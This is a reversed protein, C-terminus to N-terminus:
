PLTPLRQPPRGPPPPPGGVGVPPSSVQVSVPAAQQPEAAAPTPPELPLPSQEVRPGRRRGVVPPPAGNATPPAVPAAPAAPATPSLPPLTGAVPTPQPAVKFTEGGYETPTGALGPAGPIDRLMATRLDEDLMQLVLGYNAQSWPQGVPDVLKDPLGGPLASTKLLHRRGQADTFPQLFLAFQDRGQDDAVKGMEYVNGFWSSAEDTAARGPLKAGVVPLGGEDTAEMALATFVPAAVLYPIGLTNNVLQPARSQGFGVDARNNGGLKISGSIVVGGFAPKEGGIQGQGRSHDMFEMVVGTMSTLGDYAVGGVLEFGKTRAVQEVVSLEALGHLTKCPTCYMPSVLARVPYNALREGTKSCSVLYQTTVPPVLDVAPSTEGTEANISRPWYGKTALYLTEIGLGESSRTRARWFRILGHKALRQVSTPIAGGDWSYLLLVKGFTEWLYEAFTGLLTTKGSGPVGLILTATNYRQTVDPM